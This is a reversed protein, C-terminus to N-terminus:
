PALEDVLGWELATVADIRVGSLVLYATRWPGIRRTVSVTGGAGPVLGMRLEPLQFFADPRATVHAAFAPVEIGAGVCAGHLVPRVRDRLRHVALGASAAMRVRHAETLDTAIGFEDLDGGSCFAPGAGTLVVETVDADWAAVDLASLLGDRVARGFANRREPRNLTVVLRDGDRGVLVPEDVAEVARRPREARWAAFEPGGLLTSYALSEAELAEEVTPGDGLALLGALARTAEPHARVGPRMMAAGDDVGARDAILHLVHPDAWDAAVLDTVEMLILM